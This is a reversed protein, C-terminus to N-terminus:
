GCSRRYTDPTMGTYRKFTASFHQVSSFHLIEAIECLECRADRLLVKATDIKKQLIYQKPTINFEDSFLHIIYSKSLFFKKEVEALTIDFNPTEDIMSKIQYALTSSVRRRARVTGVKVIVETLLVAVEGFVDDRNNEDIGNLADGMRKFLDYVDIHEIIVPENFYYASLAASTLRGRANIWIKTYPDEPDAWYKHSHGRDLYYFDGAKVTYVEGECEIYGKGSIVYEFVSVNNLSFRTRNREIRYNENPSTIGAMEVDFSRSPDFKGSSVYFLKEYGRSIM